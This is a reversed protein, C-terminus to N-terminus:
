ATVGLASEIAVAVGDDRNAPGIQWGRAHALEKLDDPANDM